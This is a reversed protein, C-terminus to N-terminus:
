RRIARPSLVSVRAVLARAVTPVSRGRRNDCKSPTSGRECTSACRRAPRDRRSRTRRERSAANGGGPQDGRVELRRECRRPNHTVDTAATATPAQHTLQAPLRTSARGAARHLFSYRRGRNSQNGPRVWCRWRAAVRQSGTTSEVCFSGRATAREDRVTRSHRCLRRRCPAEGRVLGQKRLARARRWRRSGVPGHRFGVSRLSLGRDTAGSALRLRM